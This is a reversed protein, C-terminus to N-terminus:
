RATAPVNNSGVMTQGIAFYLYTAGDSNNYASAERIKIGNSVLDVKNSNGGVSEGGGFSSEASALNTALTHNGVNRNSRTSDMIAWNGTSSTQKFIVFKPKFGTYIFRGSANGNGVYTGIKCYGPKNAFCYAVYNVAGNTGSITPFTTSNPSGSVSSDAKADTENLFLYDVSGDIEKTYSFWDTGSGGGDTDLDKMFYFKPTDNLGHGVTIEGSGTGTWKVISFGATQNASVLSQVSGDFNSSGHTSNTNIQGGMGSHVSCNYYLTPASAGVTIILQRSTAASFGSTYQSYTKTAGDLKYTVGTSYSGDVGSSTGLVFPHSNVTSDSVDFTYTGGEQLDLTVASTGFTATDTSNRFRYKNGSDSVVVVKYTQTPASGGAAWSWSVYTDPSENWYDDGAGDTGRTATFGTSTFASVYGYTEANGGGEEEKDSPRLEKENGPGRVTDFIQHNYGKTRIKGWLLDPIFTGTVFTKPTTSDGTWLATNFNDSSKNNTTYAM